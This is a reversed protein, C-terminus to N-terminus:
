KNKERKENEIIQKDIFYQNKLKEAKTIEKLPTKQTKKTFANILVVLNRKDFFFLIRYINSEFEIRIEYIGDTNELYAFIKRSVKEVSKVIELVWDIKEQLESSQNDYFTEFYESYTIIKREV